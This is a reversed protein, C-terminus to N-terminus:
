DTRAVSPLYVVRSHNAAQEAVRNFFTLLESASFTCHGFRDLIYAEHWADAGAAQVRARYRDSHWAPVIPDGSTHVTVLPIRLRGNPQYGAAITTLAAPDAAFRQVERNLRDDDLSGNYSRTVNDFPQGGLRTQADGTALVNYWLLREVTIERTALDQPDYAADAVTLLQDLGAKNNPDFVVPQVTTSYTTTEWTDFLAPPIDVPTPPMLGPFFYDFLVRFDGLYNVQGAFDGYPGCLALAGDFIDPYREATLVTVLGGESAGVLLRRTPAPYRANFAANLELLDAIALPVVLGNARYSTTAFAYGLDTLLDSVNRDGPLGLEDDPLQLPRNVAVYGHAYLVLTQNWDDPVCIRYRAGSPLLGEDCAAVAKVIATAPTPVLGLLLGVLLAAWMSRRERGMAGLGM